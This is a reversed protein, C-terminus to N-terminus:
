EKKNIEIHYVCGMSGTLKYGIKIKWFKVYKELVERIVEPREEYTKRFLGLNTESLQTSVKEGRYREVLFRDLEQELCSVLNVDYMKGKALIEEPSLVM